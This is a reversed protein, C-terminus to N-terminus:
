GRSGKENLKRLKIGSALLRRTFELKPHAALATMVHEIRLQPKKKSNRKMTLALHAAHNLVSTLGKSYTAGIGEGYKTKMAQHFEIWYYWVPETLECINRVFIDLSSSDEWYDLLAERGILYVGGFYEELRIFRRKRTVTLHVALMVAWSIEFSAEIRQLAQM